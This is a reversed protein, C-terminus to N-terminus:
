SGLALYVYLLTAVLSLVTRVAHLKAWRELLTRTDVSRLDRDSALLARNTPMIFGGSARRYAVRFNLKRALAAAATVPDTVGRKFKVIVGPPQTEAVHYLSAPQMCSPTALGVPSAVGAALGAALIVSVSSWTNM